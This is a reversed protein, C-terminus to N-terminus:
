NILHQHFSNCNNSHWLAKYQWIPQPNSSGYPQHYSAQHSRKSYGTPNEFGAATVLPIYQPITAATSALSWQPIFVAKAASVSLALVVFLALIKTAMAAILNSTHKVKYTAINDKLHLHHILKQNSAWKYAHDRM